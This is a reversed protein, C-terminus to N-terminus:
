LTITVSLLPQTSLLAVITVTSAGVTAPLTDPPVVIQSPDVDSKSVKLPLEPLTKLHSLAIEGKLVQFLIVLVVVVWVEDAKVAVVWNLATTLFPVHLVTSDFGVVTVTVGAETPPVTLPPVDGIQVALAGPVRVSLPAVPPTIRQSLAILGNLLQFIMEFTVVVSIGPLRVAVV